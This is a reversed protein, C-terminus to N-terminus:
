LERKCRACVFKSTGIDDDNLIDNETMEIIEEDEICDRCVFSDYIRFARISEDDRQYEM